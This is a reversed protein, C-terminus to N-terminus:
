DEDMYDSIPLEEFLSAVEIELGKFYESVIKENQRYFLLTEIERNIFHYVMVHKQKPDVIWYEHVGSLMFTNLKELMDKSRTSTSLIELVLTPTGMYKGKSNLNGELDCIVFLDPQMIDPDEIEPKYFMIDFPALMVRCKKGSFFIKFHMYLVGLIEQHWLNPSSLLYIEGNIFEMRLNTKENIAEFEEYSVKKGGYKYDLASEKVLFYQKIDSIYPTLRAIKNGNKTIIVDNQEDCVYELYKGLNQKFETATVNVGERYEKKSM